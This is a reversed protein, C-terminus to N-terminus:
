RKKSGIKEKIEQIVKFHYNLCETNYKDVKGIEIALEKIQQKLADLEKKYNECM